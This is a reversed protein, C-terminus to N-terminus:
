KGKQFFDLLFSIKREKEDGMIKLYDFFHTIRDCNQMIPFNNLM